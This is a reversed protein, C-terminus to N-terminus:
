LWRRRLNQVGKLVEEKNADRYHFKLKREAITLERLAQGRERPDSSKRSLFQLYLYNDYHRLYAKTPDVRIAGGPGKLETDSYCIM